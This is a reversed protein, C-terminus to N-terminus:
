RQLHNQREDCSDRSHRKYIRNPYMEGENESENENENESQSQSESENTWDRIACESIVYHRSEHQYNM